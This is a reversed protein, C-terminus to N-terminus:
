RATLPGRSAQSHVRWSRGQPCTVCVAMRGKDLSVLVFWM